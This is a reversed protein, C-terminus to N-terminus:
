RKKRGKKKRAKREKKRRNREKSKEKAIQSELEAKERQLEELKEFNTIFEKLTKASEPNKKELDEMIYNRKPTKRESLLGLEIQADEWDGLITM